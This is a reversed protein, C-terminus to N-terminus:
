DTRGSESKNRTPKPTRSYKSSPPALSDVRMEERSLNDREFGAHKFELLTNPNMKMGQRSLNDHKFRTHKSEHLTDLDVKV